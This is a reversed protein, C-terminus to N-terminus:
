AQLHHYDPVWMEGEAWARLDDETFSATYGGDRAFGEKNIQQIVAAAIDRSIERIRGLDPLVRGEAEEEKNLGTSLAFAATTIMSDTIRSTKTLSAALGIAPFVYLNNAQSAKFTKGNYEVDAFPSGSAFIARGETYKIASEHDCESKSVPNSLPMIIPRKNIQAMKALIEKTFTNPVTSLGILATPKVYDIIDELEKFQKGDNDSRAWEQKQKPLSDGRDQTILGKSDVMWIQNHAEELTLGQQTFFSLLQKGVGAGSGAGTLLIRQESLPKGSAKSGLRAAAVFTGLVVCGTGQIDDNFSPYKNKYRDLFEFARNSTFDEFQMVLNPFAEHLAATVEDMFERYEEDSARKRRLGLYLPDNLKEENDTGLDVVIPLTARPHVGAAAVYLSLKGISIGLGDWGQDGIGLIRSGDTIVAIRPGGSPLPVNKLVKAVEGKDELSLTLGEPRRYIHSFKQCAEGVVPTYILPLCEEAESMVVAYFLRTNTQRLTSLYIHKGLDTKKSRMQYLCRQIQTALTQHAPPLLGRLGMKERRDADFATDM